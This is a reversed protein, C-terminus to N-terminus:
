KEIILNENVGLAILMPERIYMEIIKGELDSIVGSKTREFFERTDEPRFSWSYSSISSDEPRLDLHLGFDIALRHDGGLNGGFFGFYAEEIVGYKKKCNVLEEKCWIGNIRKYM